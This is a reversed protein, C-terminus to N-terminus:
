RARGATRRRVRRGGRQEAAPHEGVLGDVLAAVGRRLASDGVEVLSRGSMLARDAGARDDPLFHVGVPRVFGEVMRHIESESWGLSPRTRNVVVRVAADPHLDHLDVLGRALRSLGVPDASGVVLVEDARALAATTMLNRQPGTAFPDDHDGEISFGADLVLWEALDSAADLMEDYAAARVEIWRDPRPLGTLVRLPSGGAGVSRALGALRTADLEGANAARVAALLGSAADLVGLHQAVAGGYPDADVLLASRGRHALEAAVGVATTTRGPAGAPGWFVVVRAGEAAPATLADGPEAPRPAATEAGAAAARLLAEDVGALDPAVVDRVGLRLLRDRGADSRGDEDGPAEGVVVVGVGSRALVSVADADLGPLDADVLAARALGTAASAVLDPLDVCRKHLALGTHRRALLDIAASEWSASGAALLVPVAGSVASM